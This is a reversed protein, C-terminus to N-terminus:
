KFIVRRFGTFMSCLCSCPPNNKNILVIPKKFLIDSASPEWSSLTGALDTPPLFIYDCRLGNCGSHPGLKNLPNEPDWTYEKVRKHRRFWIFRRPIPATQRNPAVVFLNEITQGEPVSPANPNILADVNSKPVRFVATSGLKYTKTVSDLDEPLMSCGRRLFVRHRKNQLKLKLYRSGMTLRQKINILPKTLVRSIGSISSAPSTGGNNNISQWADDRPSQRLFFRKWPSVNKINMAAPNVNRVVTNSEPENTNTVNEEQVNANPEMAVQKPTVKKNARSRKKAALYSDTWGDTLFLSYNSACTNPAANLDGIIIPIFGRKASERSTKLLQKVEELRLNEVHRSEPNVSASAMHMNYFVFCGLSPIDVFVELFGKNALMAELYTVKEWAHFKACVIPFKSLVLLGSHFIGFGRRRNNRPQEEENSLLFQWLEGQPLYDDRVAYPYVDQLSQAILKAHEKSYVEQLCVIDANAQRIERPIYKLRKETFSPNQYLQMGLMRVELLGANFTLMSFSDLRHPSVPFSELNSDIFSEIGVSVNDEANVKVAPQIIPEIFPTEVNIKEEHEITKHYYDFDLGGMTLYPEKCVADIASINFVNEISYQSLVAPNNSNDSTVLPM